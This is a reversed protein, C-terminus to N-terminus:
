GAFRGGGARVEAAVQDRSIGGPWRFSVRERGIAGGTRPNIRSFYLDLGYIVIEDPLYGTICADPDRPDISIKAESFVEGRALRAQITEAITM